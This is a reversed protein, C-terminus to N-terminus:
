VNGMRDVSYDFFILANNSDFFDTGLINLEEYFDSSDGLMSIRGAIVLDRADHYRERVGPCM